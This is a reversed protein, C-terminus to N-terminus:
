PCVGIVIIIKDFILPLGWNCKDTRSLRESILDDYGRLIEELIKLMLPVQLGKLKYVIENLGVKGTAPNFRLIINVGQEM